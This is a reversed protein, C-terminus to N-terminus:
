IEVMTYQSIGYPELDIIKAKINFYTSISEETLVEKTKGYNHNSDKGILLVKDAAKMANAPNHTNIICCIKEKKALKVILKLIESQNKLDLFSEPEDLILIEPKQVLARALYMLQLQGGSAQTCIKNHLHAIGMQELAKMADVKDKKSPLSFIGIDRARGMLVMDLFTYPFNIKNNQAVYSTKGHEQLNSVKHGDVFIEGKNYKNIGMLCKLFTTKGIGNRGLIALIESKNLEFDIDKFLEKNREYGFSIGKVVLGLKNEVEM